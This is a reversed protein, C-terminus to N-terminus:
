PRRSPPAVDIPLGAGIWAQTGGAVNVVDFGDCAMLSAAAISRYGGACIVAVKPDDRRRGRRGADRRRAAFPAPM